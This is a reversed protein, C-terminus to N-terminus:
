NMLTAIETVKEQMENERPDHDSLLQSTEFQIDVQPIKTISGRIPSEGGDRHNNQAKEFGKENPFHPSQQVRLNM